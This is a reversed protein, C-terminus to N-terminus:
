DSAEDRLNSLFRKVASEYPRLNAVTRPPELTLVDYAMGILGVLLREVEGAAVREAHVGKNALADLRDLRKGVDEFSALALERNTGTLREEIYAWLRNRYEAKGLKRKGKEGVRPPYLANALRELYRRCSVAVQALQEESRYSMFGHLAAHLADPLVPDLDRSRLVIENVVVAFRSSLMDELEALRQANELTDYDDFITGRLGRDEWQVNAFLGSTRYEEFMWDDRDGGAEYEDKAYFMRLEDGVIRFLPILSQDYLVWHAPNAPKVELAGFYSPETRLENDIQDANRRTLGELLLVYIRRTLLADTIQDRDLTTWLGTALLRDVLADLGGAQEVRGVTILDGCYIVLHRQNQPLKMVARFVLEKIPPGYYGGHQDADFHYAAKMQLCRRVLETPPYGHARVRESSRKSTEGIVRYFQPISV